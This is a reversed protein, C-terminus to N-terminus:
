PARQELSVAVPPAWRRVRLRTLRDFRRCMALRADDTLADPEVIAGREAFQLDVTRVGRLEEIQHIDARHRCEGDALGAVSHQQVLVTREDIVAYHRAETLLVVPDVGTRGSGLAGGRRELFPQLALEDLEPHEYRRDGRSPRVDRHCTGAGPPPELADPEVGRERRGAHPVHGHARTAEIPHRQPHQARAEAALEAMSTLEGG